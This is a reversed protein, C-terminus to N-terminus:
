AFGTLQGESFLERISATKIQQIYTIKKGLINEKCKEV